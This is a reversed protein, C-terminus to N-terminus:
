HFTWPSGPLTGVIVMKCRCVQSEYYASLLPQARGLRMPIMGLKDMPSPQLTAPVLHIWVKKQM